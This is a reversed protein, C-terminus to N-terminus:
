YIDEVVFNQLSSRLKPNITIDVCQIWINSQM